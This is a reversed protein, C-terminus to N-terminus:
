CACCGVNPTLHRVCKKCAYLLWWLEWQRGHSIACVCVCLRCLVTSALANECTGVSAKGKLLSEGTPVLHPCGQLHDSSQSLGQLRGPSLPMVEQSLPFTEVGASGVSCHLGTGAPCLCHRPCGFTRTTLSSCMVRGLSLRPSM